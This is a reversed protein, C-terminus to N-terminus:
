GNFITDPDDLFDKTITTRYDVDGRVVDEEKFVLDQSPVIDGYQVIADDMIDSLMDGMDGNMDIKATTRADTLPSAKIVAVFKEYSIKLDVDTVEWLAKRDNRTFFPLEFVDGIIIDRGITEFDDIHVRFTKEDTLPSILGFRSFDMSSEMDPDVGIPIGIPTSEYARDPIEYFVKCSIDNEDVGDVAGLYKYFFADKFTLGFTEFTLRRQFSRTKDSYVGIKGRRVM